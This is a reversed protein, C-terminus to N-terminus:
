KERIPIHIYMEIVDTKPDYSISEDFFDRRDLVYKSKPIWVCSLGQYTEYIEKRSSCFHYKAYLGGRLLTQPQLEVGESLSMCIDSICRENEMVDPDCYSREVFITEETVYPRVAELFARWCDKLEHYNGIFRKYYMLRNPLEVISINADYEEFTKLSCEMDLYPHKPTFVDGKRSARYEAPYTNFCEKFATAYNSSSYGADLAIDTISKEPEAKVKTASQAMRNIKIFAYMSMGTEAKFLRSFHYKSFNCYEAVDDITIKENLHCFIYEIAKNICANRVERNDM